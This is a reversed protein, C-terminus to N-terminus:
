REEQGRYQLYRHCVNKKEQHGERDSESKSDQKETKQIDRNSQRKKEKTTFM